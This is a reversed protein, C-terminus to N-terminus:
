IGDRVDRECRPERKAFVLDVGSRLPSVHEVLGSLFEPGVFWGSCPGGSEHWRRGLRDCVINLSREGLPLRVDLGCRASDQVVGVFRSGCPHRLQPM